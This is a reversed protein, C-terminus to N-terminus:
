TSAPLYRVQYWCINHIFINYAVKSDHICTLAAIPLFHHLCCCESGSNGIFFQEANLNYSKWIFFCCLSWLYVVSFVFSLPCHLLFILIKWHLCQMLLRRWRWIRRCRSFARWHGSGCCHFIFIYLRHFYFLQSNVQRSDQGRQGPFQAPRLREATRVPKAEQRHILATRM